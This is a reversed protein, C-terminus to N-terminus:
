EFRESTHHDIVIIPRALEANLRDCVLLFVCWGPEDQAHLLHQGLGCGLPPPPAGM